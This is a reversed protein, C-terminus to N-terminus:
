PLTAPAALYQTSLRKFQGGDTNINTQTDHGPSFVVGMGGAAVLESARTLFYEARNDRFANRVGGTTASRVGLPTQWWLLPLGLGEHLNRAIAFHETFNPATLNTADWYFQTGALRNCNAFESAFFAEYCGADRDLTQMVVFDAKSAGVKQMYALETPVLDGFMSPPFGVYANPALTRAMQVLCEGLGAVSNSLNACDPNVTAVHAFHQSPESNVRHTYGWFDPELNVLAPKGYLKIQQYMIRVNDWFGKMLAQDPLAVFFNGDGWTAMQYLTFMPVAGLKDANSAVVGVYSGDPQNWMRWSFEGSGVLYQDYIDIDIDQGQIDADDTTGLGLLLRKPKGLTHALVSARHILPYNSLNIHCHTNLVQCEYEFLYGLSIISPTLTGIRSVAVISKDVSNIGLALDTSPYVRYVYSSWSLNSIENLERPFLTPFNIEAWDFFEENTLSTSAAVSTNLKISNAVIGAIHGNTSQISKLFLKEGSPLTASDSTDNNGCGVLLAMISFMLLNLSAKIFSIFNRM